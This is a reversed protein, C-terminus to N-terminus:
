SSRFAQCVEAPIRCPRGTATSVLAWVTKAQVIERGDQVRTIRTQRESTAATFCAVWTTIGLRDGGYAPALYDVEHRRVVFVAGLRVYAEHDWGAARSHDTAADQIWRVYVINSVHGLMDVDGPLAEIEIRHEASARPEPSLANKVAALM